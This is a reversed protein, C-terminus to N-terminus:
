MTMLTPPRVKHILEVVSCDPIDEACHPMETMDVTEHSIFYYMSKSFVPVGIDCLWHHSWYHFLSQKSPRKHQIYHSKNEQGELLAPHNTVAKMLLTFYERWLGGADIRGEDEFRVRPSKTPDFRTSKFLAATDEWLTNRAVTIRQIGYKLVKEKLQRLMDCVSVNKLVKSDDIRGGGEFYNTTISEEKADALTFYFFSESYYEFM